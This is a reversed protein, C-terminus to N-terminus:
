IVIYNVGGYRDSRIETIIKIETGQRRLPAGALADGQLVWQLYSEILMMSNTLKYSSYYSYSVFLDQIKPLEISFAM